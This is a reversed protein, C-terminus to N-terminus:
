FYNALLQYLFNVLYKQIKTKIAFLFFMKISKLMLKKKQNLMSAEEGGKGDRAITRNVTREVQIAM